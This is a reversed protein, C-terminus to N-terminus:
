FSLSQSPGGTGLAQSQSSVSQSIFGGLKALKGASADNIFIYQQFGAEDKLGQLYRDLGQSADGGLGVGILVPMISELAEQRRAEAFADALMKPTSTSRNDQGDTVVYVAANVAFDNAVLDKGYEVCAKVGVYIADYLSTAGRPECVNDYDAENCDPLPKFGHFEEVDHDFIIVMLMLNDARPSKRCGQVATACVKNIDKEFGAVSGSRDIILVALTYETAGLEDIRKASFQFNSGGIHHQEMDKDFRPM